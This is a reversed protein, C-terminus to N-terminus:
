GFMSKAIPSQGSPGQVAGGRGGTTVTPMRTTTSTGGEGSGNGGGQGGPSIKALMQRAQDAVVKFGEEKSSFKVGSQVLKTFIAEVLPEVPKLDENASFFESRLSQERQQEMFQRLPGLQGGLERKLNETTLYAMTVAQRVIGEAIENLAEVASEAQETPLGLRQVHKIGVKFKNMLKDLEDQSLQRPPPEAQAQPAPALSTALAKIADPTLTVPTPAPPTTSTTTAAGGQGGEPAGTVAGMGGQGQDAGPTGQGELEDAM